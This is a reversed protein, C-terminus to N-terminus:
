GPVTGAVPVTGTRYMKLEFAFVCFLLELYEPYSLKYRSAVTGIVDAISIVSFWLSQFSYM